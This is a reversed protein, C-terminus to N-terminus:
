WVLIFCIACVHLRINEKFFHGHVAISTLFHGHVAISTLFHGHIASSALFSWSSCYLNNIVSISFYIYNYMNIFFLSPWLNPMAIKTNIIHSVEKFASM